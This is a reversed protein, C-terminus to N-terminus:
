KLEVEGGAEKIKEALADAEEKPAAEKITSPASDVMEKAEKLGLGT